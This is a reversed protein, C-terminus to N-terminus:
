LFCMLELLFILNNVMEPLLMFIFIMAGGRVKNDVVGEM